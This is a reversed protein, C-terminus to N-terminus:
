FRMSCVWTGWRGGASAYEGYGWVRAAEGGDRCIGFYDGWRGGTYVGEGAKVLASNQLDNAPDGVRRGTRRLAGYTGSSSRSFVLYANRFIDTHIAPFFYYYGKAGYKNQQVVKATPVDIEYWQVCSRAESDGRWTIKSTHCTWLRRTGGVYQFMANLLRTDNTELRVGTGKQQADPPLDYARCAVRQKALRPRRGKWYGAPDIITWLTLSSGKPWLANVMYAPPDGGPGQFHGCPQVTFAQSGDPNKLNWFDYWTVPQGNYLQPKYLIRLKGYRFGGGFQFMNSVIYFCQHDFGLMPYDAWNGTPNNGDRTADLRYVFWAGGADATRSVGIMLYSRNPNSGRAAAVACWRKAYHDYVIRPDFLGVNAPLVNRFLTTMNPWRFRQVGNKRYGALEVNAGLLVEDADVGLCCDPPQWGTARIGEFSHAMPPALASVAAAEPFFAEEPAGVATGDISAPEVDEDGPEDAFARAEPKADSKEARQCLKRYDEIDVPFRTVMFPERGAKPAPAMFDQVTLEEWTQVAPSVGEDGSGEEVTKDYEETM